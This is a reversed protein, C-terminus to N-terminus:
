ARQPCLVFLRHWSQCGNVALRPKGATALHSMMNGLMQTSNSINSHRFGCSSAFILIVPKPMYCAHLMKLHLLSKSQFTVIRVACFIIEIGMVSWRRDPLLVHVPFHTIAYIAFHTQPPFQVRSRQCAELFHRAHLPRYQYSHRISVTDSVHCTLYQSTM